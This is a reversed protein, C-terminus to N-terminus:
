DELPPVVKELWTCMDQMVRGNITHGLGEYEHVEMSSKNLGLEELKSLSRKWIGSPVLMDQLGKALFVPVEGVVPPLDNASRLEQLRQGKALPLYGM